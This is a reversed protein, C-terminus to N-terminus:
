ADRSEWYDILKQLPKAAELDENRGLNWTIVLEQKARTIGVFLLRLREAAYEIRAQATAEGFEADDVQEDSLITQLQALTEAQLNLKDRLFWKESIFQDQDDLSPFNYQNVGLLYVRDWELGKAKHMTAVIVRGPYREPDFANELDGFGIFRRQNKAIRELEDALDLMQWSPNSRQIRELALSLKYVLALEEPRLRLDQAITLLLQDVPLVVASHWGQLVARFELLTKRLEDPSDGAVSEIWDNGPAPWTFAEPYKCSLLAGQVRDVANKSSDGVQKGWQWAQFAEALSGPLNPASLHRLAESLARAINRTVETSKLLEVYPVNLAKLGEVLQAGRENRPVLVAVTGDPNDSIWHNVSRIVDGIEERARYATQVLHIEQPNDTPNPQPDGEPAPQILPQRLAGRLAPVPHNSETWTILHNALDIISTTSRGSNPLTKAVVDPEELFSRLFEPSATTFTEFIAQNPDGVRVWNGDTGVLTRLIIEQLRSSDQAEDELIFPWRGRLNRLYLDDTEIAKLARVILDNFDLLGRISLAKEYEEYISCGMELLPLERSHSLLSERIDAPSLRNDKSLQIFADSISRVLNPWDRRRIKQRDNESLDAKLFEEMVDLHENAWRDSASRLVRETTIEDAIEFGESVGALDPRDRVIDHALGHLTRVRYGVNPLLGRMQIFQGVRSTFNDVASNVLTVILVEQGEQIHGGSILDAALLSLTTTKGSGPVASVGMRGRRYALVQEQNPRPRFDM